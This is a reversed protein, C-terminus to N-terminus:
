PTIVGPLADLDPLLEPLSVGDSVGSEWVLRSLGRFLLLEGSELQSLLFLTLKIINSEYGNTLIICM